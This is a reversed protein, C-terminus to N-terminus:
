CDTPLVKWSALRCNGMVVLISRAAAATGLWAVMWEKKAATCTRRRTQRVSITATTQTLSHLTSLRSKRCLQIWQSFVVATSRVFAFASSPVVVVFQSSFGAALVVPVFRVVSQSFEKVRDACFPLLATIPQAHLLLGTYGNVVDNAGFFLLCFHGFFLAANASLLLLLEGLPHNGQLQNQDTPPGMLEPIKAQGRSSGFDDIVHKFMPWGFPLWFPDATRLHQLQDEM